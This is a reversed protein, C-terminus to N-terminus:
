LPFLRKVDHIFRSEEARIKECYADFNRYHNEYNAFIDEILYIINEMSNAPTEFKYKEPIPVDETFAASGKKNTIVCCGSVAAERPIRDKGPHNGFDIYVKPLNLLNRVDSPKMNIIPMWTFQPTADILPKLDHFGKKPNFAIFNQKFQVPIKTGFFTSNLYDSLYDICQASIHMTELLYHRAYESQVLHYLNLDKRLNFIDPDHNASSDIEKKYLYLYNDISLWWICKQCNPYHLYLPIGQEPIILLTDEKKLLEMDSLISINYKTYVDPTQIGSIIGNKAYYAIYANHDLSRLADCLQHVLEPGGSVINAPATLIITQINAFPTNELM